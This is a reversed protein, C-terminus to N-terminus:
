PPFARAEPDARRADFREGVACTEPLESSSGAGAIATRAEDDAARSLMWNAQVVTPAPRITKAAVAVSSPTGALQPCPKDRGM